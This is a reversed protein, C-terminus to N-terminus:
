GCRARFVLNTGSQSVYLLTVVYYGLVLALSLLLLDVMRGGPPGPQPGVPRDDPRRCGYSIETVPIFYSSINVDSVLLLGSSVLYSLLYVPAFILLIARGMRDALVGRVM